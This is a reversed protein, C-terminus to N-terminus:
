SFSDTAILFKKSLLASIVNLSEIISFCEATFSSAFSLLNNTFSIYFEPIYFSYVKALIELYSNDYSFNSDDLSLTERERKKGGERKKGRKM